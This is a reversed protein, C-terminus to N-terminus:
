NEKLRELVIGVGNAVLESIYKIAYNKKEMLVKDGSITCDYRNAGYINNTGNEKILNARLLEDLMNNFQIKELGLEKESIYKYESIAKLLYYRKSESNKAGRLMRKDFPYRTGSLVVFGKDTKEIGPIEKYRKIVTNEKVKSINVFEEFTIYGMFHKEM